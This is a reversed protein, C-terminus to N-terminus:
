VGLKTKDKYILSIRSKLESKVFIVLLLGVM